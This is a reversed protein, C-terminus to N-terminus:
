ASAPQLGGPQLEQPAAGPHAANLLYSYIHLYGAAMHRAHLVQAREKAITSLLQLLAGDNCLADLHRLWQYPEGPKVFLAAGEWTERLSPIDSLVLACGCHAAELVSLGFPEYLVPAAYISARALKATLTKHPLVGLLNVHTYDINQRGTPHRNDGAIMVPWPLNEAIAELLVMNKAEDWVRGVSMIVPEKKSSEPPAFDHGNPVVCSPTTFTYNERLCELMHKTPAVVMDAAQLGNQVRRRYEAFQEHPAPEGKVARWWSMVCSHAGLLVPVGWPLAAQSYSNVHVLDPKFHARMRILWAGAQDVEEWPDDMWELKGPHHVWKLPELEQLEELQEKRLTGGTVALMVACGERQLHKILQMAYTWVGGIPDATILIRGPTKQRSFGGPASAEPATSKYM